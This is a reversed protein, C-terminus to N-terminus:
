PDAALADDQPCRHQFSELWVLDQEPLAIRAVERDQDERAAGVDQPIGAVIGDHEAGDVGALEDALHAHELPAV